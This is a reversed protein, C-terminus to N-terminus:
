KVGAEDIAETSKEDGNEESLFWDDWNEENAQNETEILDQHKLFDYPKKAMFGSTDNMKFSPSAPGSEYERALLEETVAVPDTQTHKIPDRENDISAWLSSSCM